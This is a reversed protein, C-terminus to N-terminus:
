GFITLNLEYHGIRDDSGTGRKKKFVEFVNLVAVTPHWLQPM